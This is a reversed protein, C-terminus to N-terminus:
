VPKLKNKIKFETMQEHIQSRQDCCANTKLLSLETFILKKVYHYMVM